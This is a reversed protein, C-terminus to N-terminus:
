LRLRPMPATEDPILTRRAVDVRLRSTLSSIENPALALLGLHEAAINSSEAVVRLLAAARDEATAADGRLHASAIIRGDRADFVYQVVEAPSAGEPGPGLGTKM